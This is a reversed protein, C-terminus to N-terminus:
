SLIMNHDQKQTEVTKELPPKSIAVLSQLIIGLEDNHEDLLQYRDRYLKRKSSKIDEINRREATLPLQYFWQDYDVGDSEQWLQDYNMNVQEGANHYRAANYVHASNKVAYIHQIKLHKAVLQATEVMFSKPRLGFFTKTFAKTFGNDKNTGQICGIYMSKNQVTFGISYYTEGQANKINLALEGEKRLKGDFNLTLYYNIDNILFNRLRIESLYIQKQASPTFTTEVWTHHDHLLQAIEKKKFGVRLFPKMCKMLYNPQSVFVNARTESPFFRKMDNFSGRYILARLVFKIVEKTKNKKKRSCAKLALKIVM